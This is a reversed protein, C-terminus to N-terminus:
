SCFFRDPKIPNGLKEPKVIRPFDAGRRYDISIKLYGVLRGDRPGYRTSIERDYKWERWRDGLTPKPPGPVHFSTPPVGGNGGQRGGYGGQPAYENSRDQPPTIREPFSRQPYSNGGYYNINDFLPASFPQHTTRENEQSSYSFMSDSEGADLPVTPRNPLTFRRKPNQANTSSPNLVSSVRDPERTHIPISTRQSHTFGCELNVLNTWSPDPVSARTLPHYSRLGEHSFSKYDIESLDEAVHRSNSAVPAELPQDLGGTPERAERAAKM